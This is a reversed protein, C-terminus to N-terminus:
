PLEGGFVHAAVLEHLLGEACSGCRQKFKRARADMRNDPTLSMRDPAVELMVDYLRRDWETTGGRLDAADGDVEAPFRLREVVGMCIMVAHTATCGPCGGAGATLMASLERAMVELADDFNGTVASAFVDVREDAFEVEPGDPRSLDSFTHASRGQARGLDLADNALARAAYRVAADDGDLWDPLAGDRDRLRDLTTRISLYWETHLDDAMDAVGHRAAVARSRDRAEPTSWFEVFWREFREPSWPVPSTEGAM